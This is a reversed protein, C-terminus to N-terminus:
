CRGKAATIALHRLHRQHELPTRSLLFDGPACTYRDTYDDLTIRYERVSGAPGGVPAVSTVRRFHDHEAAQIYYGAHIDVPTRTPAYSLDVIATLTFRAATSDNAHIVRGSAGHLAGYEPLDGDPFLWVQLYSGLSDRLHEIIAKRIQTAMDQRPGPDVQITLALDAPDLLANSVRSFTAVYPLVDRATPTTTIM